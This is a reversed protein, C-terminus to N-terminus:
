AGKKVKRSPWQPFVLGLKSVNIIQQTKWHEVATGKSVTLISHGWVHNGVISASDCAGVKRVLKLVFLDYQEAANKKATEIYHAIREEDMVVICPDSPRRTAAVWRVLASCTRYKANQQHYNGSKTDPYPAWKDQDFGVAELGARHREVTALAKKEADTIADAKMPAIVAEVPHTM